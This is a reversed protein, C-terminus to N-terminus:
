HRTVVRAVAGVWGPAPELAHVQVERPGSITPVCVLAQDDQVSVAFTSPEIQLGTGLAKLCAEKRTWRQLFGLSRAAPPLGALERCEAATLCQRELADLDPLVRVRELDVGIDGDDALAVLALEDSHSLSFACAMPGALAPKGYEGTEFVLAAAPRGTRGALVQRLAVHAAVYRRRHREFHFRAAHARERADLLALADDGLDDALRALWLEFPPAVSLRTLATPM